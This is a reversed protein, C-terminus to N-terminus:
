TLSFFIFLYFKLLLGCKYFIEKHILSIGNFFFYTMSNLVHEFTNSINERKMRSTMTVTYENMKM